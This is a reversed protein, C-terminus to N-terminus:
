VLRIQLTGAKIEPIEPHAFIRVFVRYTGVELQGVDTGPGVMIKFSNAEREADHWDDDTLETALSKKTIAIQGTMDSIDQNGLVDAYVWQRSTQLM